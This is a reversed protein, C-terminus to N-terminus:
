SALVRPLYQKFAGDLHPTAVRGLLAKMVIRHDASLDALLATIKDDRGADEPDPDPTEPDTPPPVPEAKRRIAEKKLAPKVPRSQGLVFAAFAEATTVVTEATSDHDRDTIYHAALTLCDLRLEEPSKTM